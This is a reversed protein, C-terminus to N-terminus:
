EKKNELDYIFRDIKREAKYQPTNVIDHMEIQRRYVFRMAKWAQTTSTWVAYPYSLWHLFSDLKHRLMEM